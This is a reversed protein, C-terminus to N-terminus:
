NYNLIFEIDENFMSYNLGLTQFTQMFTNIASIQVEVEALSNNNINSYALTLTNTFNQFLERAEEAEVADETFSQSQMVQRQDMTCKMSHQQQATANFSIILILGLFSKSLFKSINM